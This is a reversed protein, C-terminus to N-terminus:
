GGAHLANPVMGKYCVPIRKKKSMWTTGVEFSIWPRSISSSSALLLMLDASAVAEEIKNFWDEGPQISEWSSSLFVEIDKGFTKKLFDKAQEVEIREDAIYSIFVKKSEKMSLGRHTNVIPKM